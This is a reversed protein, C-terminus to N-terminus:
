EELKGEFFGYQRDGDDSAKDRMLERRLIHPDHPCGYPRILEILEDPNHYIKDFGGTRLVECAREIEHEAREAKRAAKARKYDDVQAFFSNTGPDWGIIVSVDQDEDDLNCRSM